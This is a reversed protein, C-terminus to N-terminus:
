NPTRNKTTTKEDEEDHNKGNGRMACVCECWRISNTSIWNRSKANSKYLKNERKTEKQKANPMQASRVLEACVFLSSQKFSSRSFCFFNKRIKERAEASQKVFSMQKTLLEEEEETSINAMALENLLQEYQQHKNRWNSSYIRSPIHKPRTHVVISAYTCLSDRQFIAPSTFGYEMWMWVGDDMGVTLSHASTHMHHKKSRRNRGTYRRNQKKRKKNWKWSKWKSRSPTNTNTHMTTSVSRFMFVRLNYVCRVVTSCAMTYRNWHSTYTSSTRQQKNFINVTCLSTTMTTTTTM